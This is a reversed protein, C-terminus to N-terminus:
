HVPYLEKKTDFKQRTIVEKMRTLEDIVESEPYPTSTEDQVNRAEKLAVSQSRLKAVLIEKIEKEDDPVAIVFLKALLISTSSLFKLAFDDHVYDAIHLVTPFRRLKTWFPKGEEDKSSPPNEAIMAKVNETFLDSFLNIALDVCDSYNALSQNLFFSDIVELILHNAEKPKTLQDEIFAVPNEM